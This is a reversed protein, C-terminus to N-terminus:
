RVLVGLIWDWGGLWPADGRACLHINVM